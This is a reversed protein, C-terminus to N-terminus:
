CTWGDHGSRTQCFLLRYRCAHSPFYRSGTYHRQRISVAASLTASVTISLVVLAYMVGFPRQRCVALMVGVAAEQRASGVPDDGSRYFLAENM